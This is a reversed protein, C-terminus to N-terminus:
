KVATGEKYEQSILHGAARASITANVFGDLTAVWEEIIPVDRRTVETVLVEPAGASANSQKRACGLFLSLCILVTIAVTLKKVPRYTQSSLLLSSKNLEMASPM